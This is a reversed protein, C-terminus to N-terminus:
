RQGRGRMSRQLGDQLTALVIQGALDVGADALGRAVEPRIGALDGEDGVEGAPGPHLRSGAGGAPAAATRGDGAVGSVRWPAAADRRVLGSSPQVAPHNDGRMVLGTGASRM